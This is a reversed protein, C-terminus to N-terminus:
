WELNTIGNISSLCLLHLMIRLSGLINPLTFLCLKLKFDSATNAGLLLTLKDKSAKCGPMSKEERAIFTQSPMKKWYFATEYVNFFRMNLSALKM